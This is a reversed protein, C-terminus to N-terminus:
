GFIRELPAAFDPLLPSTLTDDNERALEATRRYREGGERRYVKVTELEPDVIWYEEVGCRAYLDRKVIEDRRRTGESLIEVVLDPAGQVNKETLIELRDKRIFLLDPEVVDPPSLVVDFPAAFVAGAGTREAWEGLLVALRLSVAQHRTVPSPTVVHEGGLLEHRLEDEPLLCLDGYTLRVQSGSSTAMVVGM